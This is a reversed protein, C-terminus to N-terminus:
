FEEFVYDKINELISEHDTNCKIRRQIFELFQQIEISSILLVCEDDIRAEIEVDNGLIGQISRTINKLCGQPTLAHSSIRLIPIDATWAVGKKKVVGKITVKKIVRVM